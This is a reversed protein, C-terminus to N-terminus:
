LNEIKKAAFENPQEYEGCNNQNLSQSVEGNILQTAGMHFWAMQLIQIFSKLDGMNSLTYKWKEVLTNHETTAKESLSLPLFKPLDDAFRSSPSYVASFM